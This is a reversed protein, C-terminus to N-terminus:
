EMKVYRKVLRGLYIPLKKIDSINLFGDGYIDEIVDKDEGIAAAFTTVGRNQLQLKASQLDMKAINGSYAYDNPKGDTFLILLKNKESRKLLKQGVYRYALGDRNCGSPVASMIRYRDNGDVSDFEAFSYLNVTNTVNHGYITIPINMAHCFDYLVLAAMKGAALRGQRSTSGSMDLVFGVVINLGDNPSNKKAFIRGDKRLLNKSLCRGLLLGDDTYEDQEQLIDAMEKQLMGSYKKVSPALKRYDEKYFESIKEIRKLVRPVDHLGTAFEEQLEAKLQKTLRRETQSIVTEKALQRLLEELNESIDTDQPKLLNTEESFANLFVAECGEPKFDGSKEMTIKQIEDSLKKRFGNQEQKEKASDKHTDSPKGNYRHHRSDSFGSLKKLKRKLSAEATSDKASKKHIKEGASKIYEWIGLTILWVYKERQITDQEIIAKDIVIKLEQMKDTYENEVQEWNNYAGSRAYQLILSFMIDQKDYKKEIMQLVSPKQELMRMSNLAIGQKVKGGYRAAMKSEIWADEVVNNVSILIEAFISSIICDKHIFAEKIEQYATKKSDSVDEETLPYIRFDQVAEAMAGLADFDSYLIHGDEHALLGEYSVERSKINPFSISLRNELNIVTSRKLNGCGDKQCDTYAIEGNKGFKLLLLDSNEGSRALFGKQVNKMYNFFEPQEFVEAIDAKELKKGIEKRLIKDM